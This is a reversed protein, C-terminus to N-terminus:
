QVETEVDITGKEPEFQLATVRVTRELGLGLNIDSLRVTVYDGIGLRNLDVMSEALQLSLQEKAAQPRNHLRAAGRFLSEKDDVQSDVLVATGALAPFIPVNMVAVPRAEIGPSAAGSINVAAAAREAFLGTGGVAVGSGIFGEADQTYSAKTFHFGHEWCVEGTRDFGQRGRWSLTTALTPGVEHSLGWEWDTFDALTDLFDLLTNARPTYRVPPGDELELKVLLPPEARAEAEAFIEAILRGSAQELTGGKRTRGRAFLAGAHDKAEFSVLPDGAIAEMRTVMGAWPLQGDEREVSIMSGLRFKDAWDALNPDAVSLRFSCASPRMLMFGYSLDAVQLAALAAHPPFPDRLYVTPLTM